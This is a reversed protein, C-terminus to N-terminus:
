AAESHEKLRPDSILNAFDAILEFGVGDGIASLKKLRVASRDLDRGDIDAEASFSFSKLNLREYRGRCAPDRCLSPLITDFRCDSRLPPSSCLSASESTPRSRQCNVPMPPQSSHRRDNYPTLPLKFDLTSVRLTDAFDIDASLSANVKGARLAFDDLTVQYPNHRNWGINGGMGFSLNELFLAPMNLDTLGQLDLRYVPAHSGSLGATTLCLMADISDPVSLYRVPMSDRIEFTGFSIDPVLLPGSDKESEESAPFIDLNSLDPPSSYSTSAHTKLYSTM